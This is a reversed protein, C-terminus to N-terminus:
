ESQDAHMCLSEGFVNMWKSNTPRLPLKLWARRVKPLRGTVGQVPSWDIWSQCMSLCGNVNVSIPLKYYDTSRIQMDKCMLRPCSFMCAGGQKVHSLLLKGLCEPYKSWCVLFFLQSCCILHKNLYNDLRKNLALQISETSPLSKNAM